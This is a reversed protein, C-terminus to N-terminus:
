RHDPAAPDERLEDRNRRPAASADPHAVAEDVLTPIATHDGARNHEPSFRVRVRQGKLRRGQQGLAELVRKDADTLPPQVISRPWLRRATVVNVEAVYLTMQAGLYVWALFGLIVAFTGYIPSMRQLSHAILTAALFQLITLGIGGLVAGPMLARHGITKPTLLRFAVVYLAVNLVLAVLHSALQAMPSTGAFKPFGSAFSSAVLFAGLAVMMLLTRALRAFFNPRVVNPVNWVEAMAFQGAQIAGQSGWILGLVGILLGITSHSNLAHINQGLEDGIVPFQRLASTEIQTALHPNHEAVIGLVTFLLLLLPFISVFGYYAILAALQGARDDGFKKIVGFVFAAPGFHQQFHDLRRVAREVPNM